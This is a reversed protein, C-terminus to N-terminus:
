DTADALRAADVPNRMNGTEIFVKPVLSLNLGGLDSRAMLGTGGALYTAFPEGTGAAFASRLALALQHSAGVIAANYGVSIPEIVHFGRGGADAGDAHISLAVAAHADNGIAARATICPGVGANDARTLVVRAGASRLLAATRTAM